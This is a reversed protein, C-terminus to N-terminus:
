REVSLLPKCRPVRRSERMPRLQDGPKQFYTKWRQGVKERLRITKCHACRHFGPQQLVWKHYRRGTRKAGTSGHGGQESERM